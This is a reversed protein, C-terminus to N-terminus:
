GKPAIPEKELRFLYLHNGAGGVWARGSPRTVIDDLSAPFWSAIHDDSAREIM